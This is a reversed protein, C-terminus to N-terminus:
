GGQSIRQDYKYMNVGSDQIGLLRGLGSGAAEPLEYSIDFDDLVM